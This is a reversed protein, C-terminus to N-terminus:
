AALSEPAKPTQLIMRECHETTKDVWRDPLLEDLDIGPEMTLRTLVDRLYKFPEIGNRTASAILTYYIAAAKGGAESGFFLYNKRGLAIRRLAGEALNNDLTVEGNLFLTNLAVWNNLAYKIAKGIRSQPLQKVSQEDLWEKLRAVLSRSKVNRMELRLKFFDQQGYFNKAAIRETEHEVHYLADIMRVATIATEGASLIAEFFKRRVHAFCAAELVEGTTYVCDYGAYADAQLIGAFGKLASVPGERKRTLTFDYYIYPHLSDGRYAWMRCEPLKRNLAAAEIAIKLKVPTDDTWIIDSQIVEAKIREALPKLVESGAFLWDWMTQRAIPLGMRGLIAEQRKLPLHDGYKSIAIHAVLGFGPLGKKILKVVKPAIKVGEECQRCAVKPRINEIVFITAPVFDIQESVEEGIKVKRGNCCDCIWHAEPLPVEVKKRPLDQFLEKRYGASKRGKKSVNRNFITKPPVDSSEDGKPPEISGLNDFIGIQGNPMKETKACFQKARVYRLELTTIKLSQVVKEGFRKSEALEKELREVESELIRNREIAEEHLAKWNMNSHNQKARSM